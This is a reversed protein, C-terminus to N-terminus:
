SNEMLKLRNKKWRKFRNIQVWFRSTKRILRLREKLTSKIENEEVPTYWNNINTRKVLKYGRQILYHHKELNYLKDELIILRPKYKKIDFGKLVDLETGEVDISIFDIKHIPDKELLSNLTVAEVNEEHTYQVDFDDLNKELSAMVCHQGTAYLTKSGVKEPSTCANNYITIGPREKKLDRYCQALPEILMGTWGIEQLFYTLSNHKPDNAGIDIFYGTTKYHFFDLIDIFETMNDQDLHLPLRKLLLQKDAQNM